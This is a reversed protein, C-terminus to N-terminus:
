RGLPAIRALPRPGDRGRLQWGEGEVLWLRRLVRRTRRRTVVEYGSTVYLWRAPVNAGEVRGLMRRYGLRALAAEVGALFAAPTGQGRHEPAIFLDYGFVEDDALALGFDSLDYGAAAGRADHWWFYGILAGDRFGLLARRGQALGTAFRHTRWTNRQRRNFEALAPLHRAEGEEVRVPGPPADAALEKRLVIQDTEAYFQSRVTNWVDALAAKPGQDRLICRVDRALAQIRNV